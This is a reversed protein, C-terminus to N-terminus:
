LYLRTTKESCSELPLFESSLFGLEGAGKKDESGSELEAERYLLCRLVFLFCLGSRGLM